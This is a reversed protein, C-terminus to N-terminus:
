EWSDAMMKKSWKEPVVISDQRQFDFAVMISRSETVLIPESSHTLLIQQLMTISKTGIKEVTTTVEIEDYLRIQGMYSTDTRATIIRSIDDGTNELDLVQKFYETKGLDFYMQQCVNNVHLFSDVDSFRKQIKTRITVAM